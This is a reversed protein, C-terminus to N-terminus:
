TGSYTKSIMLVLGLIALATFAFASGSVIGLFQGESEQLILHYFMLSPYYAM